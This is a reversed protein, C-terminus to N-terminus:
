RGMIVPAGGPVATPVSGLVPPAIQLTQPQLMQYQQGLQQKMQYHSLWIMALSGFLGLMPGMFQSSGASEWFSRQPKYSTQSPRTGRATGNDRGSGYSGRDCRVPKTSDIAIGEGTYCDCFYYTTPRGGEFCKTDRVEDQNCGLSAPSAPLGACASASSGRDERQAENPPPEGAGLDAAKTVTAVNAPANVGTTAGDTGTAKAAPQGTVVLKDEKKLVEAAAAVQTPDAPDFYCRLDAALDKREEIFQCNLKRLEAIRERLDSCEKDQVNPQAQCVLLLKNVEITLQNLEEKAEENKKKLDEVTGVNKYREENAKPDKGNKAILDKVKQNCIGATSEKGAELSTQACIGAGYIQHNCVYCKRLIDYSSKPPVCVGDKFFSVHGLTLCSQGDSAKTTQAQARQIILLPHVFSSTKKAKEAASASKKQHKQQVKEAADLLGRIQNRYRDRDEIKFAAVQEPHLLQAFGVQESKAYGPGALETLFRVPYALDKVRMTKDYSKGKLSYTLRGVEQGRLNFKLNASQGKDVVNLQLVQKRGEKITKFEVKPLQAKPNMELYLEIEFRLDMPLQAKTKEYVESLLVPKQGVGLSQFYEKIVQNPDQTPTKASAAAPALAFFQVWTFLVSLIIQNLSKM